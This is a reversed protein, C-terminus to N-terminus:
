GRFHKEGKLVYRGNIHIHDLIIYDEERPMERTDIIVVREPERLM